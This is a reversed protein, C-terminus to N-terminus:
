GETEWASTFTVAEDDSGSLVDVLNAPAVPAEQALMANLSTAVYVNRAVELTGTQTMSIDGRM